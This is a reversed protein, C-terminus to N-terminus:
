SLTNFVSEVIDESLVYNTSSSQSMSLMARRLVFDIYFLTKNQLVIFIHSKGQYATNRRYLSM